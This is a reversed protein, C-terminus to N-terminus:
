IQVCCCCFVILFTKGNWSVSLKGRPFHVIRGLLRRIRQITENEFTRSEFLVIIIRGSAAVVTITCINVRGTFLWGDSYKDTAIVNRAHYLVRRGGDVPEGPCHFIWMRAYLAIIAILRLEANDAGRTPRRNSTHAHVCTVNNFNAYSRDASALVYVPVSVSRDNWIQEYSKTLSLRPPLPITRWVVAFVVTYYYRSKHTEVSEVM